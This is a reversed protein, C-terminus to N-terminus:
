LRGGGSVTPTRSTTKTEGEGPLVRVACAIDRPASPRGPAAGQASRLGERPAIDDLPECHTVASPRRLRDANRRHDEGRGRRPPVRVARAADRPTALRGAAANQVIPVGERPAMGDFPDGETMAPPRRLRDADRRRDEGRGREPLIRAVPAVDEPPALRGLAADPACRLGEHLAIGAM